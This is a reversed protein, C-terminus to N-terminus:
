RPSGVLLLPTETAHAVRGAVSGLLWRAIGRRGHTGMVILEAQWNQAERLIANAIDDHTSATSVIEAMSREAGISDLVAKAATLAQEGQKTFADELADITVPDALQVGRDVVYVARLEAQPGVLTLGFRLAQLAPDSGDLAFLIREPTRHIPSDGRAPVVLIPCHSLKVLPESVTGEVWRSLWGYHERAGVILLDAHWTSACDLLAHIVDGGHKALEIVDTELQVDDRAFRRYAQNVADTADRLLEERAEALVSSPLSGTPVLTRPNEAVSVIRVDAGPPVIHTAFELAKRSAESLETAILIRQPKTPAGYSATEDKM